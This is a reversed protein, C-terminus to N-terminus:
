KTQPLKDKWAACMTAYVPKFFLRIILVAVVTAIAPAMGAASVL